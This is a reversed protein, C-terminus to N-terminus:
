KGKGTDPSSSPSGLEAGIAHDIDQRLTPGVNEVAMLARARQLLGTLFTERDAAEEYAKELEATRAKLIAANADYRVQLEELKRKHLICEPNPIGTDAKALLYDARWPGVARWSSPNTGKDGEITLTAETATERARERCPGALLPAEDFAERARPGVNEAFACIEGVLRRMRDRQAAIDTADSYAGTATPRRPRDCYGCAGSGMLNRTGCPEPCLWTTV